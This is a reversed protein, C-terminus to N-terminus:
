ALYPTWSDIIIPNNQYYGIMSHTAHHDPQGGEPERCTEKAYHGGFANCDIEVAGSVWNRLDEGLGNAKQCM